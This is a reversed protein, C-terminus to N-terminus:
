APFSLLTAEWFFLSRDRGRHAAGRQTRACVCVRAGAHSVWKMLWLSLLFCSCSGLETGVALSSCSSLGILHLAATVKERRPCQTFCIHCWFERLYSFQLLQQATHICPPRKVIYDNKLLVLSKAAFLCNLSSIPDTSKWRKSNFRPLFFFTLSYVTLLSFNYLLPLMRYKEVTWKWM